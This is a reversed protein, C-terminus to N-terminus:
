TTIACVLCAGNVFKPQDLVYMPATEYLFSTNTITVPAGENKQGSPTDDDSIDLLHPNELYRLALEINRFQDGLNSGLAIAAVVKKTEGTSDVVGKHPDM